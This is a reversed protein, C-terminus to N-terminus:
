FRTAAYPRPDVSPKRGDVLASVIEGTVASQTLGHHGHGFAYIVRPTKPSPGIVPLSDPLSPRFGMWRRSTDVDQPLDPLFTRLRDLIADTRRHDAPAELGGFEVAGGVRDGCDLPTTVFGEGEFAVPRSLGLVGSPLTANYGRETDLPIRDGLSAALPKSWAGAAVVARDAEVPAGDSCRVLIGDGHPELRSARGRLFRAGRQRAREALEAVVAKPDSVHCGSPYLTGAAARPGLAPELAALASRDLVEVPIGFSRQREITAAAAKLAATSTWVSLVGRERLHHAMDLGALRRRWAPLAEANLARIAGISREIRSPHSAAVFRAIWPAIAPLYAPRIALPGLPDMLWRPLHRWVKPSALPMIDTHAIWGANGDCPRGPQDQPDVLTVEHGADILAHACMSGVIGAGVIVIRM